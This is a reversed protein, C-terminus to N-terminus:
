LLFQDALRDTARIIENMLFPDYMSHGARIPMRLEMGPYAELLDLATDPPCIRDSGGQIAICPIKQIRQMREPDLLNVNNRCYNDNASYFCTLMCQAPINSNNSSNFSVEPLKPFPLPEQQWVDMRESPVAALGQRFDQIRFPQEEQKEDKTIQIKNSAADRYSWGHDKTHVAVPSSSYNWAQIANRTANVDSSNTSSPIKYSVSIFYEWTMWSRAANRRETENAGMFKQYHAHLASRPHYASPSTRQVGVAEEFAAWAQPYQQAAGGESSFLWDIERTRLLCVGRLVMARVSDPYTQALAVALTTGWSGGLVVDWQQVELHQRLRECDEVLDRLTHNRVEGRPLSSGSGRQDLLVIQSYRDPDFFRAHNPFCGAGPGGHLFLAVLKKPQQNKATTTNDHTDDNPQDKRGYVQYSLRHLDDVQLTGNGIVVASPPYLERLLDSEEEEEEEENAVLPDTTTAMMTQPTPTPSPEELSLQLPRGRAGFPRTGTRFTSVSGQLWGLARDPMAHFVLFLLVTIPPPAPM